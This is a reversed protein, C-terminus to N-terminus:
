EKYFSKFISIGPRPKTMIGCIMTEDNTKFADSKSAQGSKLWCTGHKYNTWAFHTCGNTRNCIGGCDKGQGSASGIDNKNKNIDCQKAWITGDGDKWEIGKINLCSLFYFYNFLWYTKEEKFYFLKMNVKFILDSLQLMILFMNKSHNINIM